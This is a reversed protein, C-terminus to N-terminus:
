APDDPGATPLPKSFRRPPGGDRPSRRKTGSSTIVSNEALADGCAIARSARRNLSV